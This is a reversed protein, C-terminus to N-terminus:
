SGSGKRRTARPKPAVAPSEAGSAATKRAKAPKRAAPKSKSTAPKATAKRKRATRLNVIDAM